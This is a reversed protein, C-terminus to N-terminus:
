RGFLDRVGPIGLDGLRQGWEGVADGLGSVTDGATGILDDAEGILGDAPGTLGDAAGTVGDSVAAMGEAAIAEVDVSQALADFDVGFTAAQELLPAAVASGVAGAAVVGLVGAATGAIGGGRVRSLTGRMRGPRAGEARGAARALDDASASAPRATPPLEANMRDRVRGRQEAGLRSFGDRHMQEIQRQDGTRLLYDYRAIAGRDARSAGANPAHAPPPSYPDRASVTPSHQARPQGPAPDPSIRADNRRGDGKRGEDLDLAHSARGLLRDLIGM